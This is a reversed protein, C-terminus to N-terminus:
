LPIRIGPAAIANRLTEGREIITGPLLVSHEVIAEAAIACNAGLVSNEVHAEPNISADDSIMHPFFGIERQIRGALQLIRLNDDLNARYFNPLTGIDQWLGRHEFLALRGNDALGYFGTEVIGSFETKLHRFIEPNFVATGTYIFSSSLGTGRQNRFDLVLGDRVGIYGIQAALPTEYLALTGGCGSRQHADILSRLNIDSIIDSNILVFEEGDLLHECKKLGGGTGLIEREESLVIELSGFDHRDFFQRLSETHHHINIIAKRIGAEKLLFLSYCLSPVNLVPVLPKPMTDTLPQLRTGFGAALVFANM